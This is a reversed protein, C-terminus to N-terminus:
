ASSSASGLDRVTGASSSASGLDRVTGASSSASGLDRVTGASSSASGLDRVTGASSPAAGSDRMTGAPSPDVGDRPDSAPVAVGRSAVAAQVAAPAAWDGTLAPLDLTDIRGDPSVLLAFGPTGPFLYVLADAGVSRLAAGVQEVTPPEFLTAERALVQLARRRADSPMVPTGTRWDGGAAPAPDASWEDALDGADAARLLDPVTGAVTAAHLVLGRGTELAQWAGARDGANLAARAVQLADASSRRATTMADHTGSQLLVQWARARLALRGTEAAAAPDGDAAQLAALAIGIEAAGRQGPQAAAINLAERLAAVARGLDGPQPAHEYLAALGMGYQALHRGRLMEGAPERMAVAILDVGERVMDFRDVARGALVLTSGASMRMMAAIPEGARWAVVVDRAYGAAKLWHQRAGGRLALLAHAAALSRLIQVRAPEGPRTMALADGLIAPTDAPLAADTIEAWMLRAQALSLLLEYRNPDDAAEHRADRLLDLSWRLDALDGRMEFRMMLATAVSAALAVRNMDDLGTEELADHALTIARDLQAPDGGRYHLRWVISTALQAAAAARVKPTAAPDTVVEDLLDIATDAQERSMLQFALHYTVEAREASGRPLHELARRAFAEAKDADSRNGTRRAREALMRTLQAYAIRRSGPNLLPLAAEIDAIIEDIPAMRENTRSAHELRASARVWRAEARMAPELGPQAVLRDAARVTAETEHRRFQVVMTLYHYQELMPAPLQGLDAGALIGAAADLDDTTPEAGSNVVADAFSVALLPYRSGEAWGARLIELARRHDGPDGRHRFRQEYLSGHRHWLSPRDSQDTALVTLVARETAAFDDDRHEKCYRALYRHGLENMAQTWEASGPPFRRAAERMVDIARDLDDGRDRMTLAEAVIQLVASELEPAGGEWQRLLSLTKEGARVAEDLDGPASWRGPMMVAQAARLVHLMAWIYLMEEEADRPLPTMRAIASDIVEPPTDIGLDDLGDLWDDSM